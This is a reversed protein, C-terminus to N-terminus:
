ESCVAITKLGVISGLRQFSKTPHYPHTPASVLVTGCWSLTGVRRLWEVDSFAEELYERSHPLSMGRVYRVPMRADGTEPGNLVEDMGDVM